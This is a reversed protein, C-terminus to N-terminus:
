GPTPIRRSGRFPAPRVARIETSAIAAAMSSVTSAITGAPTRADPVWNPGYWTVATPESASATAMPSTVPSPM